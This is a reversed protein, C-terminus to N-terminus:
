LFFYESINFSSKAKKSSVDFIKITDSFSYQHYLILFDCWVKSM